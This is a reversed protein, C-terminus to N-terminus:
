RRQRRVWATFVQEVNGAVGGKGPCLQEALAGGGHLSLKATRWSRLAPPRSVPITFM